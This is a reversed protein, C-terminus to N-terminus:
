LKFTQGLTRQDVFSIKAVQRFLVFLEHFNAHAAFCEFGQEIFDIEVREDQFKLFLDFAGFALTFLFKELAELHELTHLRSPDFWVAEAKGHQWHNRRIKARHYLERTTTKRCTVEIVEIAANDVAVVTQFFEDVEVSWFDDAAVFHAHELFGDITEDVVRGSTTTARDVSGTTAAAELADRIHEFTFLTTEALVEETFTNVVRTTADDHDAWFEFDVLATQRFLHRKLEEFWKDDAPEDTTFVCM